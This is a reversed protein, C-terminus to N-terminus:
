KKKVKWGLSARWLRGIATKNTAHRAVRQISAVAVSFPVGQNVLDLLTEKPTKRGLSVWKGDDDKYGGAFDDHATEFAVQKLDRLEKPKIGGSKRKAELEMARLGLGAEQLGLRKL